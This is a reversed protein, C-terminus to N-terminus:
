RVQAVPEDLRRGELPVVPAMATESQGAERMLKAVEEPVAYTLANFRISGERQLDARALSRLLALTFAGHGWKDSEYSYQTAGSSALMYVGCSNVEFNLDDSRAGALAGSHCTDVFLFVARARLKGGLAEELERGSLSTEKWKAKDFDYTPFYYRGQSDSIGHGSLFVMVTDIQGPRGKQQLWKLGRRLNELTAKESLLPGGSFIEVKDYLPAGERQLRAAIAGADGDPFRLNSFGASGSSGASSTTGADSGNKYRGVGACLVYLNGRVPQAHPSLLTLEVPNSGLEATDYALARLRIQVAGLPLPVRFTYRKGVTFVLPAGATTVRKAGLELPKAGLDLAKAGLELARAGLELPKAGV